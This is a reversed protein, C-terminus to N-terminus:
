GHMPPVIARSFAELVERPRQSLAKAPTDDFDAHPLLLWHLLRYDSWGDPKMSILDAIVPLIQTSVVDFQFRPYVPRGNMTFELLQRTSVKDMITPRAGPGVLGLLGCATAQDVMPSSRLIRGRIEDLDNDAM